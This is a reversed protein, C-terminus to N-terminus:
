RRRTATRKPPGTAPLDYVAGVLLEAVLQQQCRGCAPAMVSARHGLVGVSCVRDDASLEALGRVITEAVVALEEDTPLLRM